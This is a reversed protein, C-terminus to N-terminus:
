LITNRKEWLVDLMWKLFFAGIVVLYKLTSRLWHLDLNVDDFWTRKRFDSHYKAVERLEQPEESLLFERIEQPRDKGLVKFRYTEETVGTVGDHEFEIGNTFGFGDPLARSDLSWPLDFTFVSHEPHRRGLDITLYQEMPEGDCHQRLCMFNGTFLICSLRQNKMGPIEVIKTALTEKNLLYILLSAKDYGIVALYKPNGSNRRVILGETVKLEWTHGTLPNVLVGNRKGHWIFAYVEDLWVKFDTGPFCIQPQYKWVVKDKQLFRLQGCELCMQAIMELAPLFCRKVPGICCGNDQDLELHVLKEDPEWPATNDHESFMASQTQILKPPQYRDVERLRQDQVQSLDTKARTLNEVVSDQLSQSVQALKRLDNADLHSYILDRLNPFRQTAFIQEM